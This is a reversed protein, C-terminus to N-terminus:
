FKLNFGIGYAYKHHQSFIVSAVTLKFGTDAKVMRKYKRNFLGGTIFLAGTGAATAILPVYNEENQMPDLREGMTGIMVFITSLGAAAGLIKSTMGLRKYKYYPQAKYYKEVQLVIHKKTAGYAQKESQLLYKLEEIKKQTLLLEERHLERQKNLSLSQKHAITARLSDNILKIKPKYIRAVSDLLLEDQGSASNSFALVFITISLVLLLNHKMRYFM